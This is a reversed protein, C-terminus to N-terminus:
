KNEKNFLAILLDFFSKEQLDEIQDKSKFSEVIKELKYMKRRETKLLLRLGDTIAKYWLEERRQTSTVSSKSQRKSWYPKNEVVYKQYTKKAWNIAEKTNRKYLICFSAIIKSYFYEEDSVRNGSMIGENCLKSYEVLSLNGKTIMSLWDDGLFDMNVQSGYSGHFSSAKPDPLYYLTYANEILRCAFEQEEGTKNPWTAFDPFGEVDLYKDRQVIFHGWSQYVKLPKLIKLGKNLFENKIEIYEEPIANFHASKSVIKFFSKTLDAVSQSERPISARDYVPLILVSFNEDDAELKKIVISSIFTLYPTPACDDDLFFLYKTSAHKAGINRSISSGMRKENRFYKIKVGKTAYAEKEFDDVVEKTHDTSADDVIIIEKISSKQLLLASICVALPNYKYNKSERDFPCRNYTPIIAAIDSQRKRGNIKFKSLYDPQYFDKNFEVQLEKETLEM